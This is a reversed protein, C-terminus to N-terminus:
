VGKFNWYTQDFGRLLDTTPYLPVIVLLARMARTMGVYMVRRERALLEERGEESLSQAMVPYKETLFGALAVIPFELGKSSSLTLIKIGSHTLNLDRGEMYTAEMGMRNLDQALAQGINKNPCLVACSSLTLRLNRSAQKFFTALLQVEHQYSNVTRADPMPGNHIYQTTEAETAPELTANTLYSRAAEGIEATSRYNARLISTRGQFKLNQHVDSWNFGSGYISQNADATIFLRNSVKCLHILMRLISPDLDQAEDIVVADFAHSFETQEVLSAARARRQQWTEKGSAALLTCWREYVHWLAVRQPVSLRLKRGNRPTQLYADLTTLQRAVIVTNLEQLLYDYGMREIMRKQAFQQLPPGNYKAEAVAQRTLQRLEREDIIEKDASCSRLVAFALRDATDVRVYQVNSGLLQQLLQKSAEVLANTYTTFLIQPTERNEQDNDNKLLQELLSRIRHLAVTSKGTGPSGKVLTPGTIQPSWRAYKEQEPSLKLLFTLLEGEKYRLLDDVERLVLDPQTIVQILPREFMYEDIRLLTDEDIGPCALLAEEDQIRLLRPHYEVPVQLKNLLEVTILEPLLRSQSAPTNLISTQYYSTVGPPLAADADALEDIDLDLDDALLDAESIDIEVDDKYTDDDRLRITLINIQHKELTYFIRYRGCRLRYIQCGQRNLYKVPKKTKGDPIPDQVLMGIKSFVRQAEKEPLKYIDLLIAPKILPQWPTKTV